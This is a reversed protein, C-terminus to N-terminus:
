WPSKSHIWHFALGIPKLDFMLPSPMWVISPEEGKFAITENFLGPHGPSITGLASLSHDSDFESRIFGSGDKPQCVTTKRVFLGRMAM